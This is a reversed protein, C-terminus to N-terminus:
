RGREMSRWFRFTALREIAYRATSGTGLGVVDGDKVMDAGAYGTAQKLREQQDMGKESGRAAM